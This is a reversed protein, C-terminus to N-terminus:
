ALVPGHSPLLLVSCIDGAAGPSDLLVGMSVDGTTAEQVRGSTTPCVLKGASIAASAIMRSIGSVQVTAARGAGSPKNQLVGVVRDTANDTAVEVRFDVTGVVVNVPKYQDASMDSNAELSIVLGPVSAAM